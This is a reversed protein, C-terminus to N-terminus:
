QDLGFEMSAAMSKIISNGNNLFHQYTKRDEERFEIIEIGVLFKDDAVESETPEYRRGIATMRVKRGVLDLEINLTRDQGVLYDEKIRIAPVLLSMGSDSLDITRGLIFMGLNPSKFNILDKQPEFWVKAPVCYKKRSSARFEAITKTVKLVAARIM